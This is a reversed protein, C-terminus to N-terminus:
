GPHALAESVKNSLSIFDLSAIFSCFHSSLHNYSCFSYIPHVCQRKGKRLAIPLDNNLVPDSTSTAPPPSLVLPTNAGLVQTIPPKTLPVSASAPLALTYVLLDDCEGQCTHIPDQSFLTNELFTVDVSVLYKHLSPYYCRYGKHVRSYGFFICKLSKPGLKSM